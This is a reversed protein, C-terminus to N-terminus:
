KRGIKRVFKHYIFGSVLAVLVVAVMGKIGCKGLLGYSVRRVGHMAVSRTAHGVAQHVLGNTTLLLNM